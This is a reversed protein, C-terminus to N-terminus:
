AVLDVARVHEGEGLAAFWAEWETEDHEVTAQAPAHHQETSIKTRWSCAFPPALRLSPIMGSHILPIPSARLIHNIHRLLIAHRGARADLHLVWNYADHKPPHPPPVNTPSAIRPVNACPALPTICIVVLRDISIYPAAKQSVTASNQMMNQSYWFFFFLSHDMGARLLAGRQGENDECRGRREEKVIGSVISVM